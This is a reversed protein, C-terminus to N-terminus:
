AKGLGVLVLLAVNMVVLVLWITVALATVVWGNRMNFAAGGRVSTEDPVTMIHSRCTFWVLPATVFPLIVSLCVQSATLAQNLGEKGVAAAIIISPIISISRTVLRRMWPKITWHLMGESVMQGAMTCVIGASTGSLLLALAFITGAAKSLNRSLLDHIGFLDAETAETQPYLSAGSVILIASNVFLAFTFLSTALEVISYKLCARIAYISPRYKEEEDDSTDGIAIHGNQEDFQKLRPQVVGSGLFISHPMVTAGMIGCSLYIGNGRVIASSPLYGKFVDGASTDRIYSLQICFCVMVGLVLSMVFYEFVRLRTMSGDPNYFLLLILVDVLTIACGAVLPIHLLLNLAIASGIVEAIDTAIIASEALLYLILTLWRPLHKRCNEALDLGTVSGLKICLSQLFIAFLNSLLIVFLHRYRTAAGAEVDTAYNGPDIYAVAILFGPGIFKAYKQLIAVLRNWVGKPSRLNTNRLTTFRSFTTTPQQVASIDRDSSHQQDHTKPDVKVSGPTKNPSSPPEGTDLPRINTQDQDSKDLSSDNDRQERLNVIGNLDARTTLDASLAHPSQNWDPHDETDDNRSPRNM